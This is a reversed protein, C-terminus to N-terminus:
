FNSCGNSDYDLKFGQKGKKNGESNIGFSFKNQLTVFFPFLPELQVIIGVTTVWQPTAGQLSVEGFLPPMRGHIKMRQM